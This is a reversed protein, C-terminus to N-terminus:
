KNNLYKEMDTRITSIYRELYPKYEPVSEMDTYESLRPAWLIGSAFKANLNITIKIEEEVQQLQIDIVIYEFYGITYDYLIETSIDYVVAKFHNHTIDMFDCQADEFRAYKDQFYEDFFSKIRKVTTAENRHSNTGALGLTQIEVSFCQEPLTRTAPENVIFEGNNIYVDINLDAADTRFKIILLSDPIDCLFVMKQFLVHIINENYEMLYSKKLSQWGRESTCFLYLLLRDEYVQLHRVELVTDLNTEALWQQYVNKQSHFFTSDELLNHQASANGWLLFFLSCLFFLKLHKM